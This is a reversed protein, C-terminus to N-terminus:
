ISYKETWADNHFAFCGINVDVLNPVIKDHITMTAGITYGTDAHTDTMIRIQSDKCFEQNMM